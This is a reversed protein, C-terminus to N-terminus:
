TGASGDKPDSRVKVFEALDIEGNIFRQAHLEAAESLKFGSLRMSARAGKVAELRRAREAPSIPTYWKADARMPPIDSTDIDEERIAAMRAMAEDSLIPVASLDIVSKIVKEKPM